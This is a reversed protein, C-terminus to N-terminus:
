RAALVPAAEGPPTASRHTVNSSRIAGSASMCGGAAAAALILIWGLRKLMKWRRTEM